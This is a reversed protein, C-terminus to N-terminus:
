VGRPPSRNDAQTETAHPKSESFLYIYLNEGVRVLNRDDTDDWGLVTYGDVDDIKVDQGEVATAESAEVAVERHEGKGGYLILVTKETYEKRHKTLSRCWM